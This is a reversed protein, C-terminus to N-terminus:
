AESDFAQQYNTLHSTTPLRISQDNNYKKGHTHAKM